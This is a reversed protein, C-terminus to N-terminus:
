WGKRARTEIGRWFDSNGLALSMRARLLPAALPYKSYIEGYVAEIMDMADHIMEAASGTAAARRVGRRRDCCARIM